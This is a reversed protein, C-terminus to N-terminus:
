DLRAVILYRSAAWFEEPSTIELAAGTFVGDEDPAPALYEPNHRSVVKYTGAGPLQITTTERFDIARFQEPDLDRAPVLTEGAKWLILLIRAGGEEEIVGQELLEDDTGVAVHVTYYRDELDTLAGSLDTRTASLSDARASLDNLADIMGDISDRKAALAEDRDEIVTSLSDRLSGARRQLTAIRSRASELQDSTTRLEDAMAAVRTQLEEPSAVGPGGIEGAAEELSRSLDRLRQTQDTLEQNLSDRTAQLEELEAQVEPSPGQDCAAFPVALAVIWAFRTLTTGSRIM